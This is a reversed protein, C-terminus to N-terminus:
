WWTIIALADGGNGGRGGTIGAGGGGGGSGFGGNGGAGGTGTGNGAGGAGGTFFLPYKSSNFGQLNLSYFGNQGSDGPNQGGIINSTFGSSIINGGAFSNNSTDCGGGGAGGSWPAGMTVSLGISATGGNAGGVGQTPTLTNGIEIIGLFRYLTGQIYNAGGTLGGAGSGVGGGGYNAIFFNGQTTVPVVNIYSVGGTAGNGLNGGAGGRAVLLYLTDPLYTAPVLMQMVGGGAGGGGGFRNNGLAASQGGAGGGGSGLIFLHVMKCGRPKQWTQWNNTAFFVQSNNKAPLSFYDIM